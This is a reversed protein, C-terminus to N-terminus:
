LCEWYYIQPQWQPVEDSWSIFVSNLGNFDTADKM